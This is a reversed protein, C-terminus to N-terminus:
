HVQGHHPVMCGITGELVPSQRSKSHIEATRGPLNPPPGTETPLAHQQGSRPPAQTLWAVGSQAM